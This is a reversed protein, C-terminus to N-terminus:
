GCLFGGGLPDGREKVITSFATIYASGEIEPVIAPRGNLDTRGAIRAAFVEGLLNEAFYTEGEAIEGHGALWALRASTGTGCPSRDFKNSGLVVLHRARLRSLRSYFLVSPSEGGGVCADLGALTTEVAAKIDAGWSLAKSASGSDLALGIADADVMAYWSGGFALDARVEGIGGVRVLLKELGPYSPVNCIRAAALGGDDRWVLHVTVVGAPTELTFNERPAAITGTAALTKAYGISAHGCMDLYIYSSIFFAGFDAVASAVPILAVMAAHGSPEHLLKPRLHDHLARFCDRQEAVSTGSLLPLGSLVVRTPHGATHSDIVSFSAALALL